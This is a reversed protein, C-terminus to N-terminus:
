ATVPAIADAFEGLGQAVVADTMPIGKDDWGMLRYYIRKGESWQERPYQYGALPGSKFPKFIQEPMSDDDATFGAQTNYIRAMTSVRQGLQMLEYNSYNWGTAARMMAVIHEVDWPLFICM